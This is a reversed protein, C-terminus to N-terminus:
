SGVGSERPRLCQAGVGVGLERCGVGSERNGIGSERSGVGQSRINLRLKEFLNALSDKQYERYQGNQLQEIGLEIQAKLEPDAEVKNGQSVLSIQLQEILLQQEAESLSLIIETLSDILRTNLTSKTM